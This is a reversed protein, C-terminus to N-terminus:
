QTNVVNSPPTSILKFPQRALKLLWGMWPPFPLVFQRDAKQLFDIYKIIVNDISFHKAREATKLCAERYLEDSTEYCAELLQSIEFLPKNPNYEGIEEDEMEHFWGYVTPMNNYEVAQLSPIGLAAAEIIAAGMGIFYQADALVNNIETYAVPGHLFIIKELGERKVRETIGAAYEGAGYIHFTYYINKLALKKIIGITADVYEKSPSLRGISVLKYRIINERQEFLEPLTLANPIIPSETLERKSFREHKGKITPGM